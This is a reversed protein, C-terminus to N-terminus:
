TSFYFSKAAIGLLGSNVKRFPLKTLLNGKFTKSFM